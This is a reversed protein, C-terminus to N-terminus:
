IGLIQKKKANFEEETIIGKDRLEALKELDGLDSGKGKRAFENIKDEIMEKLTKFDQWQFYKFFVTNEDQTADLLGEKHELGGLYSFQIFGNTFTGPNKFQISSIQSILIEKNGRLGQTLFSVFGERKIIVKNEWLEIQGNAGAVKKLPKNWILKVGCNLCKKDGPNVKAKCNSCHM